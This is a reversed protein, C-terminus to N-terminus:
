KITVEMFTGIRSRMCKSIEIVQSVSLEKKKEFDSGLNSVSVPSFNCDNEITLDNHNGFTCMYEDSNYAGNRTILPHYVTKFVNKRALSFLFAKESQVSGGSSAWAKDLYGGFINGDTDKIVSVTYTRKDTVSRM